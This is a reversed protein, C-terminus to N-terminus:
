QSWKESDLLKSFLGYVFKHFNDPYKLPFKDVIMANMINHSVGLFIQLSQWCFFQSFHKAQGLPM